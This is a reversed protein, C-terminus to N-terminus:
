QLIIEIIRAEPEVDMPAVLRSNGFTQLRYTIGNARAYVQEKVESAMLETKGIRETMEGFSNGIRLGNRTVVNPSQIAIMEITGDSSTMVYGLETGDAGDIFHVEIGARDGPRLGAQHASLPDGVRIGLFADEDMEYPDEPDVDYIDLNGQNQEPLPDTATAPEQNGTAPQENNCSLLLLSLFLLLSLARM